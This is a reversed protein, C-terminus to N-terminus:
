KLGGIEKVLKAWKDRDERIYKIFEEPTNLMLEQGLNLLQAKVQPEQM